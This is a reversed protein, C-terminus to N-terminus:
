FAKSCAFCNVFTVSIVKRETVLNAPVVLPHTTKPIESWNLIGILNIPIPSPTSSKCIKSLFSNTSEKKLFDYINFISFLINM